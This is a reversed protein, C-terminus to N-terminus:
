YCCEGGFFVSGERDSARALFLAERARGPLEPYVRSREAGYSLREALNLVVAERWEDPVELTGGRLLPETIADEVELEVQEGDAAALVPWIYLIASAHRQDLYWSTPVGTSTRQPLDLYEQRTLRCMPTYIGDRLLRASHARVPRTDLTYSAATTLTVTQTSALWLHSDTQWSQLMRYLLSQGRVAQNADMAEDYGVVNIERYADIIMDQVDSM